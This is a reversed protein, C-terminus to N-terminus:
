VLAASSSGRKQRMSRHAWRRALRLAVISIMVGAAADLLYHNATFVVAAAMLVPPIVLLCRAATSETVSTTLMSALVLWGVHFSPMAAYRNTFASDRGDGVTDVFGTLFRPPAVPYLAFIVLGIASAIFLSNRFITYIARDREWLYVLAALLLPWYLWLYAVNFVSMLTSTAPLLAQAGRELDLGLKGEFALLDTANAVARADAGEILARLGLYGVLGLGVLLAQMLADTFRSSPPSAETV